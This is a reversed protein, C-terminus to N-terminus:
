LVTLGDFGLRVDGDVEGDFDGVAGLVALRWDYRRCDYRRRGAPQRAPTEGAGGIAGRREGM